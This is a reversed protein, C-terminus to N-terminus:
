PATGNGHYGPDDEEHPMKTEYVVEPEGAGAAVGSGPAAVAQAPDAVTPSAAGHATKAGLMNKPRSKTEISSVSEEFNSRRREGFEKANKSMTEADIIYNNDKQDLTSAAQLAMTYLNNSYNALEMVDDLGSQIVGISEAITEVVENTNRSVYLLNDIFSVHRDIRKAFASGVGQVNSLTEEYAGLLVESNSYWVEDGDAENVLLETVGLNKRLAYLQNVVDVYADDARSTSDKQQELQAIKDQLAQWHKHLKKGTKLSEQANKTCEQRNTGLVNLSSDINSTMKNLESVYRNLETLYAQIYQELKERLEGVALPQKEVIEVEREVTVTETRGRVMDPWGWTLGYLNDLTRDLPVKEQQPQKTKKKVLKYAEEEGRTDLIYSQLGERLLGMKEIIDDINSSPLMAKPSKGLTDPTIPSPSKHGSGDVIAYPSQFLDEIAKDKEETIPKTEQNKEEM